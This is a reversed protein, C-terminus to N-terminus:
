LDKDDLIGGEGYLTHTEKNYYVCEAGLLPYIRFCGNEYDVKVRQGIQYFDYRDIIDGEANKLFMYSYRIGDCYVAEDDPILYFHHSQKINTM